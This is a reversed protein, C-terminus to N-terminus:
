RKVAIWGAFNMWRWFCDVPRFGATELMQETWRAAMPVLVGELSFRKRDIEERSYGQEEKYRRYADVMVDDLSGSGLVKEVLIFAGGAVLRDHIMEILRFRYEVPVFQMTLVSLIVSAPRTRPLGARLDGDSLRVVGAEIWHGFRLRCEALMPEAVDNGVFTVSDYLKEILPAMADGRACGIDVIDTKPQAYAIALETVATRMVEIQPISRRLMDDFVAAVEADFEWRGEPKTEDRPGSM